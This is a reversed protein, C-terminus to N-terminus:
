LILEDVVNYILLSVTHNTTTKIIIILTITNVVLLCTPAVFLLFRKSPFIDRICTSGIVRLLGVVPDDHM